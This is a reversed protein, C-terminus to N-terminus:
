PASQLDKNISLTKPRIAMVPRAPMASLSSGSNGAITEQSKMLYHVLRRFSDVKELAVLFSKQNAENRGIYKAALKGTGILHRSLHSLWIPSGVRKGRQAFIYFLQSNFPPLTPPRSGSQTRSLHKHKQASYQDRLYSPSISNASASTTLSLREGKGTRTLRSEILPEQRQIEELSFEHPEM